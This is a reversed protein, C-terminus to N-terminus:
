LQRKYVDLHTYSVPMAELAHSLQDPHACPPVGPIGASQAGPSAGPSGAARVGGRQGEEDKKRWFRHDDVMLVEAMGERDRICM